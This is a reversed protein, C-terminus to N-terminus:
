RTRWKENYLRTRQTESMTLLKEAIEACTSCGDKKADELCAAVCGTDTNGDDLVIHLHGGVNGSGRSCERDGDYLERVTPLVEAVTARNPDLRPM